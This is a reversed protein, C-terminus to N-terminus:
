RTITWWTTPERWSASSSPVSRSSPSWGITILWVAGPPWMGTFTLYPVRSTLLDNTSFRSLYSILFHGTAFTRYVRSAKMQTDFMKCHEPFETSLDVRPIAKHKPTGPLSKSTPTHSATPPASSSTAETLSTPHLACCSGAEAGQLAGLVPELCQSFKVKYDTNM